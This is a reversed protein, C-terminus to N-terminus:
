SKAELPPISLGHPNMVGGGLRFPGGRYASNYPKPIDTTPANAFHFDTVSTEETHSGPTATCTTNEMTEELICSIGSYFRITRWLLWGQESKM